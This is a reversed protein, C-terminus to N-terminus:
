RAQDLLNQLEHRYGRSSKLEIGSTLTIIYEGKFLPQIDKVREINVVSSRHIRLFMKHDLRVHLSNMTERMLHSKNGVHLRVYDGTAEVWDIEDTKIFYIRGSSKIALRTTKEIGSGAQQAHSKPAVRMDGLLALLKEGTAGLKQQHIQKKARRLTDEFREHDFPKLLYDLARADFARIAYKDYATVFVTLPMKEIGIERIVQFGDADPMQVDLFVLDLSQKRIEAIAELGSGCEAVIEIDPDAVLMVRLADRALPEDDVIMTRIKQQM